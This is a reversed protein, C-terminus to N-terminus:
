QRLQAQLVRDHGSLDKLIKIESYRGTQKALVTVAPGQDFGIEAFFYGGPSLYRPVSAVLERLFRLGDSGGDLAGRPEWDKVEPELTEIVETPIYPPNSVIIDFKQKEQHRPTKTTLLDGELFQCRDAVGLNQANKAAVKLAELSSDIGIVTANPLSKALCIAICGSGTGIDAISLNRIVFSSNRILTIINEVLIETEPRPILVSRDVFFDLGLFPQYGIIYATPERKLRRELLPVFASLQKPGLDSDGRLILETRKLGLAHGLLIEAELESEDIGAGKLESAARALLSALKM